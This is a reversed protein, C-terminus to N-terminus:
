VMRRGTGIFLGIYIITINDTSGRSRSDSVLLKLATSVGKRTHPQSEIMLAVEENTMVDFLGDSAIILFEHRKGERQFHSVTPSSIIFPRMSWDGISRSVNLRGNIRWTGDTNSIFGGHKTVRDAESKLTPKHDITMQKTVGDTRVIARSDGVNVFWIDSDTVLVVCATSGVDKTHPLDVDRSGSQDLKIVASELSREVTKTTNLEQRVISGLHAKCFDAVEYGNHGDFVGFLLVNPLIKEASINRDEMYPRQGRDEIVAWGAGM